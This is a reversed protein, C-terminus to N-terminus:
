PKPCSSTGVWEKAQHASERITPDVLQCHDKQQEWVLLIQQAEACSLPSLVRLDTSGHPVGRAPDECYIRRILTYGQPSPPAPPDPAPPREGPPSPLPASAAPARVGGNRRPHPSGPPRTPLPPTVAPLSASSSALPPPEVSAGPGQHPTAASPAPSHASSSPSAGRAPPASGPQSLGPPLSPAEGVEQAPEVPAGARRPIALPWPRFPAVWLLSAVLLVGATVTLALRRRPVPQGGPSAALVQRVLQVTIPQQQAWCGAQLVDTCLRNLVRPVGQAHRVVAQLAGPTFIPGGPLAVKAVHQRIYALSEATTFPEITAHLGLGQAIQHHQRGQLHQQLAPQGVLVLQLPLAHAAPPHALEWVQELTELPLHQAEDIILAVNRGLHAEDLLRQQIQARLAGLDDTAVPVALRRALLALIDMFSHHAQWLVLTTLHPAGSALYAHVLTTKGVGPAGTLVVLGQRAAIGQTLADMAARHSASVFLLTPDPTLPFPACQLRYYDLYMTMGVHQTRRHWGCPLWAIPAGARMREIM